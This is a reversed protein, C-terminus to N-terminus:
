YEVIIKVLFIGLVLGFLLAPPSVRNLGINLYCRLLLAAISVSSPPTSDVPSSSGSSTDLSLAPLVM